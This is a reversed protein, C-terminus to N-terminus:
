GNCTKAADPQCLDFFTPRPSGMLGKMVEVVGLNM